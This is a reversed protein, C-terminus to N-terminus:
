GAPKDVLGHRAAYSQLSRVDHLGLRALIQARHAAVTKESLDLDYAIQKTTNSAAILKFIQIQRSTLTHLPSEQAAAPQIYRAIVKASVQPSLYCQAHAIARLAIELEAPASEKLLYAAAGLSLAESVMEESAHMSLVMVVLAPYQSKLARLLDLGNDDGMALDAIVIDPLAVAIAAMAQGSNSAEAVVAFGSIREILSRIGARVLAHDDVLLITRATM